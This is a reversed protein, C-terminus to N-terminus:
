ARSGAGVASADAPAEESEQRETQATDRRVILCLIVLPIGIASTATFLLPYGYADVVAGSAGGILKGPLAYLSSLLAYQTAAFGPSTLGSMYAILASGAFGSSFNDISISLILLNRDAGEVALWAFMLNSAAAIVAGILLTWWLGLRTLALGGAFAGAIGIWVGYLKSVNAIDVKSFGLDIYLPNAMVGAVFDPLRFCAILLLIPILIMGKREYLDALPLAVAAALSLRERAAGEDVRPALLTGVLGVGMLAAMALYASRWSVFEAIYLAGAGACILALRYGLQYSAAMLGQRETSTANIRWGDVVVDQTASAFAVLLASAVTLLLASQPDSSAIGALGLATVIQSLAMWGRRRGLLGALVPVDYRDVIPAWLFKFSYALAVWSLMGIETRSIGAEALWASLTGFVLLFPLGSSFGLPLMLAIRGDTLVDRLALRRRAQAM